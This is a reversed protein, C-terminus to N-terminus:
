KGEAKAIAARGVCYRCRGPMVTTYSGGGPLHIQEDVCDSCECDDEPDGVLLYLADLLDPAAVILRANAADNAQTTIAVLHMPDGVPGIAWRPDTEPEGLPTASWPGPTHQSM